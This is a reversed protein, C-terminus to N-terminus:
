AADGVGSLYSALSQVDARQQLEEFASAQIQRVRERSIGLREGVERLTLGQGTKIGFRLELISKERKPLSRLADGVVRAVARDDHDDGPERLPESVLLDGLCSSDEVAVPADLCAIPKLANSIREAEDMKMDARKAVELM